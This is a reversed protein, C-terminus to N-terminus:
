GSAGKEQVKSEPSSLMSPDLVWVYPVCKGLCLALANCEWPGALSFFQLVCKVGLYESNFTACVGKKGKDEKRRLKECTEDGESLDTKWTKSQSINAVTALVSTFGFCPLAKPNM